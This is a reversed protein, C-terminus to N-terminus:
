VKDIIASSPATETAVPATPAGATPDTAQAGPGTPTTAPGAAELQRFWAGWDVGKLTTPTLGGSYHKTYIEAFMEAPSSLCYWGHSKHLANYAAKSYKAFGSNWRSSYIYVDGPPTYGTFQYGNGPVGAFDSSVDRVAKLYRLMHQRGVRSPLLLALKDDASMGAFAPDDILKNGAGPETGSKLLSVAWAAIDAAPVNVRTPPSGVELRVAGTASFMASTFDGDAVDAWDAYTKVVDNGLQMGPYQSDGVSHGFEHRAHNQFYTLSTAGLTRMDNRGRLDGGGVGRANGLADSDQATTDMHSPNAVGGLTAPAYMIVNGGWAYSTGLDRKGSAAPVFDHWNASATPATQKWRFVKEGVFGLTRTTAIENLSMPSLMRMLELMAADTPSTPMWVARLDYTNPSGAAAGPDKIGSFDDFITEEGAPMIRAAALHTFATVAQAGTRGTGDGWLNFFGRFSEEDPMRAPLGNLLQPFLPDVGARWDAGHDKALKLVAAIQNGKVLTSSWAAWQGGAEIHRKLAPVDLALWALLLPNGECARALRASDAALLPFLDFVSAGTRQVLLTVFPNSAEAAQTDVTATPGNFLAIAAPPTLWGGALGLPLALVTPWGWTGVLRGAAAPDVGGIALLVAMGVPDGPPPPAAIAPGNVALADRLGPGWGPPDLLILASLVDRRNVGLIASYWPGVMGWAPIQRSLGPIDALLWAQAVPAALFGALVGPGDGTLMPLVTFPGAGPFWGRLASATVDDDLAALAASADGRSLIPQLVAANGIAPLAQLSAILPVLGRPDRAGLDWLVEQEAAPSTGLSSAAIELWVPQPPAVRRLIGPGLNDEELAVFGALLATDVRLGALDPDLFAGFATLATPADGCTVATRLREIPAQSTDDEGCVPGGIAGGAHSVGSAGSIADPPPSSTGGRMRSQLTQNGVGGSQVPTTEPAPPTVQAPAQSMTQTAM